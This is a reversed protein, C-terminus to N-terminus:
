WTSSHSGYIGIPLLSASLIKGDVSKGAQGGRIEFAICSMRATLDFRSPDLISSIRVYHKSHQRFNWASTQPTLKAVQRARNV